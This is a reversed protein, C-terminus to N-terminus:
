KDHITVSCRASRNGLANRGCLQGTGLIKTSAVQVKDLDDIKHTRRAETEEPGVRISNVVQWPKAAM